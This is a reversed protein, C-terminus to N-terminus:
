IFGEAIEPFNPGVIGLVILCECFLTIMSVGIMIYIMMLSKKLLEVRDEGSM